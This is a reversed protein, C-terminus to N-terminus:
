KGGEPSLAGALRDLGAAIADLRDVVPDPPAAVTTCHSAEPDAVQARRPPHSEVGRQRGQPPVARRQGSGCTPCPVRMRDREVDTLSALREMRQLDSRAEWRAEYDEDTLPRPPQLEHPAGTHAGECYWFERSWGGGRQKKAPM